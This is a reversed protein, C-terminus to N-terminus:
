KNEAQKDWEELKRIAFNAQSKSWKDAPTKTNMAAQLHEKFYVGVKIDKAKAQKELLENIKAKQAATIATPSPPQPPKKDDKGQSAGNGDDDTDAVIGLAACLAYRRGYTISSGAQQADAKKMPLPLPDFEFYEGSEHFLYTKVISLNDITTVEQSQSLGHKALIPQATKIISDLPAYSNGLHNNTLTKEPMPCEAQFKVFAAAIHKISESM